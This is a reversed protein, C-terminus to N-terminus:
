SLKRFVIIGNWFTPHGKRWTPRDFLVEYGGPKRGLFEETAARAEPTYADDVMVVAGSALFPEAAQLGELQNEFSHEGDYHYVGIAGQHVDRFYARYDLEFFEDNPGKLREFRELFEAKVDGFEPSAFQSFNDIGVSRKSQNGSLGALFTYGHWIGVNVYEEGLPMCAVARNLIAGIPYTSMRPMNLTRIVNQRTARHDEPLRTNAAELWIGFRRLRFDLASFWRPDSDPGCYRFSIDGLYDRFDM